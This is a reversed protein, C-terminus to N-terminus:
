QRNGIESQRNQTEQAEQQSIDDGALPFRQKLANVVKETAVGRSGKVLVLDGEEVESLIEAAAEESSDFFRTRALGAENAGATIEKALGRV